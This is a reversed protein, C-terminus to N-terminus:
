LIVVTFEIMDLYGLIFNLIKQIVYKFDFSKIVKFYQNYVISNDIQKVLNVEAFM